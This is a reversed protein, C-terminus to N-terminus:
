NLTKAIKIKLAILSKREFAVLILASLAVMILYFKYDTNIAYLVGLSICLILLCASMGILKLDNLIFYHERILFVYSVLLQFLSNLIIILVAGYIGMNVPIFQLSILTLVFVVAQLKLFVTSKNFLYFNLTNFTFWFKIIPNIALFPLYLLAANYEVPFIKIFFPAIGLVALVFLVFVVYVEKISETIQLHSVNDRIKKLTDPLLFHFVSILLVDVVYIITLAIGYVGMASLDFHKQLFYKDMNSAYSGLVASLIIPLGAMWITKSFKLDLSIGKAYKIVFFLVVLIYGIARGYIAGEIGLHFVVIGLVSGVTMLVTSMLNLIVFEKLKDGNRFFYFFVDNLNLFFAYFILIFLFGKYADDQLFLFYQGFIYKGFFLVSLITFLQLIIMSGLTKNFLTKVGGNQDHKWYLFGFGDKIGLHLLPAIIGILTNFLNLFGYDKVSLFHTYIPTFILSISLPLYGVIIYLLKRNKLISLM